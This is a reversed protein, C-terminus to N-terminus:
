DDKMDEWYNYELVVVHKKKVIDHKWEFNYKHIEEKKLKLKLFKSIADEIDSESLLVTIRKHM